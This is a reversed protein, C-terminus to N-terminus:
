AGISARVADCQFNHHAPHIQVMWVAGFGSMRISPDAHHEEDVIFPLIHRDELRYHLVRESARDSGEARSFFPSLTYWQYEDFLDLFLPSWHKFCALPKAPEDKNKFQWEGRQGNEPDKRFPLDSDHLGEQIFDLIKDPKEILLLIAFIKRRSTKSSHKSHEGHYEFTRCIADTNRVLDRESMKPFLFGLERRVLGPCILRHLENHPLFRKLGHKPTVLAKGLEIELSKRKEDDGGIAGSVLRATSTESVEEIKDQEEYKAIQATAGLDNCTSSRDAESRPQIDLPPFTPIPVDGTEFSEEATLTIHM